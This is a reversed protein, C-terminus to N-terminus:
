TMCATTSIEDKYGTYQGNPSPYYKRIEWVCCSPIVKRHGKGLHGHQWMIYQRYAAHRTAWNDYTPTFVHTLWIGLQLQLIKPNWVSTISHGQNRGVFNKIWAVFKSEPLLCVEATAVLVINHFVTYRHKDLLNM